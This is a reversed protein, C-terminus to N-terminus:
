STLIFANINGISFETGKQRCMNINGDAELQVTTFPVLCFNEHLGKKKFEKDVDM